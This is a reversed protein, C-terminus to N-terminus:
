FSYGFGLSPILRHWFKDVTQLTFHKNYYQDDLDRPTIDVLFPAFLARFFFGKPKGQYRYGVRPIFTLAIKRRLEWPDDLKTTKDLMLGAGLDLYHKKNGILFDVGTFLATLNRTGESGPLHYFGIHAITVLKKQSLVREYNLSYLRTFSLVNLTIANKQFRLSDEQASAVMVFCLIGALFLYMKKM